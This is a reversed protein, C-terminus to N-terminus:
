DDNDDDDNDDDDNDDDDNDDNHQTAPSSTPTNSITPATPSQRITSSPKRLM